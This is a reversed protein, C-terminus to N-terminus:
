STVNKIKNYKSVFIKRNSKKKEKALYTLLYLTIQLKSIEFLELKLGFSIFFFKVKQNQFRENNFDCLKPEKEKNVLLTM